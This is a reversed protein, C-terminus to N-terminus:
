NIRKNPVSRLLGALGFAETSTWGYEQPVLVRFAEESALLSNNLSASSLCDSPSSRKALGDNGSALLASLASFINAGPDPLRFEFRADRHVYRILGDRTERSIVKDFNLWNQQLLDDRLRRYSAEQPCYIQQLVNASRAVGSAFAWDHCDDVCPPNDSKVISFNLHLGNGFHGAMPKASFDLELGLRRACVELILKAITLIIAAQYPDIPGYSIEYQGPGGEAHMTVNPIQAADFAKLCHDFYESHKLFDKLQYAHEGPVSTTDISGKDQLYFELEVGIRVSFGCDSLRAIQRKLSTKPCFPTKAVCSVFEINEFLTTAVNKTGDPVIEFDVNDTSLGLGDLHSPTLFASKSRVDSLKGIAEGRSNSIWFFQRM